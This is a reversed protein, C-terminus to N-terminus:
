DLTVEGYKGTVVRAQNLLSESDSDWYASHGSTDVHMRNAGFAEDSPVQPNYGVNYPIGHFRDVAWANGPLQSLYKGMEPVPDDSAAESWVHNAGVHLDKANGVEVGPSGAVVIDNTAIHGHSAAVGVLTSGYSHGIMTTHAATDGDHAAALGGMFSSLAPAGQDAYKRLTAAGLDQPADYGLYTITSTQQDSALRHASQWLADMRNLDSGLGSLKAGTGPVYVATNQATDPNGNAVIAHGNGRTDFGLLYKEPLGNGGVSDLANQVVDTGKIRDELSQVKNEWDQYEPTPAEPRGEPYKAPEKQKLEDLQAELSARSERLVVRNAEDRVTAPLGDIAGIRDPYLALYEEQQEKTLHKWWAANKKPDSNDPLRDLHLDNGVLDQTDKGEAAVAAWTKDTIRWDQQSKVKALMKAYREDIETAQSVAKAIRNAIAEATDHQSNQLELPSQGRAYPVQVPTVPEGPKASGAPQPLLPVPAPGAPYSVSGDAEVTFGDRQAEEIADHLQKQVPRLEDVLAALVTRLYGSEQYVYQYNQSLQSLRDHMANAAEGKQDMDLPKAIGNTSKSRAADMRAMLDGWGDAAASVKTLDLDALQQRTVM